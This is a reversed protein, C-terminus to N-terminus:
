LAGQAHALQPELATLAAADLWDVADGAQVSLREAEHISTALELVGDRNLPVVVGTRQALMATFAPWLDRASRLVALTDDPFGHSADLIGGAAPSSEGARADGLLVVDLRADALALATCLGAVGAGVIAVDANAATM